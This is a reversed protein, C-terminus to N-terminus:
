NIVLDFDVNCTFDVPTNGNYTLKAGLLLTGTGSFPIDTAPATDIDAYEAAGFKMTFNSLQVSPNCTSINSVQFSLTGPDGTVEFQGATPSGSVIHENGSVITGTPSVVIVKSGPSVSLMGFTIGQLQNVGFAAATGPLLVFLLLLTYLFPARHELIVRKFYRHM